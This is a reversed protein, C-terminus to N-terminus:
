AGGGGGLSRLPGKGRGEAPLFRPSRFGRSISKPSRSPRRPGRRRPAYPPNRPKPREPEHERSREGTKGGRTPERSGRALRLVRGWGPLRRAARRTCIRAGLVAPRAGAPVRPGSRWSTGLAGYFAWVKDAPLRPAEVPVGGGRRGREAGWPPHPQRSDTPAKIQAGPSGGGQPAPHPAISARAGPTEQPLGPLGPHGPASGAQSRASGLPLQTSRSLPHQKRKWLARLCQLTLHAGTPGARPAGRPSHLSPGM